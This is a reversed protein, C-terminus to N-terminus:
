EDKKGTCSPVNKQLLRCSVVILVFGFFFTVMGSFEHLFGQAVKNGYYHALLGTGTVRILNALFAFPVALAILIMKKQISSHMLYAFLCSLMLYSVLSRIGSCAQAVELSANVFYLMNGERLVPIDLATLSIAAIKTALMQLPLSITGVLSVPVPVIFFLFLLPFWIHHIIRKGFNFYILGIVTMVLACRPLLEIGGILGIFYLLLSFVLLLFGSKSHSIQEDDFSDYKKWILYLSIFPVLLGHSNNDSRLLNFFEPMVPAYLIGTLILLFFLYFSNRYFM